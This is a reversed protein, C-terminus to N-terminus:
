DPKGVRGRCFTRNGLLSSAKGKDDATKAVPGLSDCHSVAYGLTEPNKGKTSSRSLALDSALSMLLHLIRM